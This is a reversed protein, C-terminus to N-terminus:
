FITFNWFIIVLITSSCIIIYGGYKRCASITSPFVSILLILCNEKQIRVMFLVKSISISVMTVAILSIKIPNWKFSSLHHSFIRINPFLDNNFLRFCYCCVAMPMQDAQEHCKNYLEKLYLPYQHFFKQGWWIKEM